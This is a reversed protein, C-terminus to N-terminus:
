FIQDENKFNTKEFSQVNFMNYGKLDENKREGMLYIWSEIM